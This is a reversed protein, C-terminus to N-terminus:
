HKVQNLKAKLYLGITTVSAIFSFLKEPSCNHSDAAAARAPSAVLFLSLAALCSALAASYSKLTM